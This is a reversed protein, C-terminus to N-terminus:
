KERTYETIASSWMDDTRARIAWRYSPSPIEGELDFVNSLLQGLRQDPNQYWALKLKEIILDIRSIDRM